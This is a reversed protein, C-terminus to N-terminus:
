VKTLNLKTAYDGVFFLLYHKGGRKQLLNAQQNCRLNAVGYFITAWEISGNEDRLVEFRVVSFKVIGQKLQVKEGEGARLGL